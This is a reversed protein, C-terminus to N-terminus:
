LQQLLQMHVIPAFEVTHSNNLGFEQVFGTVAKTVKALSRGALHLMQRKDCQEELNNIQWQSCCRCSVM